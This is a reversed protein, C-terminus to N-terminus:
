RAWRTSSSSSMMTKRRVPLSLLPVCSRRRLKRLRRPNRVPPAPKRRTPVAFETPTTRDSRFRTPTATTADEASRKRAARAGSLGQNEAYAALLLVLFSSCCCRSCCSSCHRRRDVSRGVSRVCAGQSQRRFGDRTRAVIFECGIDKYHQYLSNNSTKTGGQNVSFFDQLIKCLTPTNKITENIKAGSEELPDWGHERFGTLIAQKHKDGWRDPVTKKPPM